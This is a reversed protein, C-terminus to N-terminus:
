WRLLALTIHPVSHPHRSPTRSPNTASASSTRCRSAVPRAMTNPWTSPHTRAQPAAAASPSIPTCPFLTSGTYPRIAHLAHIRSELKQQFFLHNSLSVCSASGSRRLKPSSFHPPLTALERNDQRRPSSSCLAAMSHQRWWSAQRLISFVTKMPVFPILLM